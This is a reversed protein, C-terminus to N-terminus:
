ASASCLRELFDVRKQELAQLFGQIREERMATYQQLLNWQRLADRPFAIGEQQLKKRVYAQDKEMQQRKREEM